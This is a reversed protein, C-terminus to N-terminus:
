MGFLKLLNALWLKELLLRMVENNKVIMGPKFGRIIVFPLRRQKSLHGPLIIIETKRTTAEKKKGNSTRISRVTRCYSAYDGASPFRSFDGSELVITMGLIIGIGPIQQIRQYQWTPKVFKLVAKEIDTALADSEKVAKLLTRLQLQVFPDLQTAEIGDSHWHQIQRSTLSAQGYRALLSELSLIVQTRRRTFLQRRRLADRVSRTQKPYIYCEPFVGLRCQEALWRADSQDDTVKLGDYQQMKAPNGLKVPHGQERLGDVFWYWNFTSEVGLAEIQSWYPGLATNVADLNAKVRRKFVQKGDKDCLSLFVNSGHLDAGGYLKIAKTATM